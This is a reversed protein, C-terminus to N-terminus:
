EGGQAPAAALFHAIDAAVVRGDAVDERVDVDEEDECVNELCEALHEIECQARSLLTRVEEPVQGAQAVPEEAMALLRDREKNAEYVMQCTKYRLAGSIRNHQAVTMLPERRVVSAQPGYEKQLGEESMASLAPTVRIGGQDRHRWENLFAVVKPQELEPTIMRAEYHIGDVVPCLKVDDHGSKTSDQWDGWNDQESRRMRIQYAAGGLEPSPQALAARNNWAEARVWTHCNTCEVVPMPRLDEHVYDDHTLRAQGGCFPCPKLEGQAGEAQELHVLASKASTAKNWNCQAATHGGAGCLTCAQQETM